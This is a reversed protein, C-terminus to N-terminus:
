KQSVILTSTLLSAYGLANPVIDFWLEFESLSGKDWRSILSMSFVSLSASILIVSWYKGTRRMIRDSPRYNPGMDVAIFKCDQVSVVLQCLSRCKDTFLIAINSLIGVSNPLLHLGAESATQLRVAM